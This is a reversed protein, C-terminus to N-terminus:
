DFRDAHLQDYRLELIQNIEVDNWISQRGDPWRIDIRDVRQDSGLGFHIDAPSSSLFGGGARMERTQTGSASTLTVRAGVGHRNLPSGVLKITLWGSEDDGANRYFQPLVSTDGMAHSNQILVDIWGDNDSDFCVVARGQGTSNIGMLTSQESFTGDGDNIFLRAVNGLFRPIHTQYGNVMFLDLWGDNNFDASCSGWGWDGARVGAADTADSFGGQGDNRYLRNGTIGYPRPETTDEWISTVFWDLDGDNDFDGVSSGMGNEDSIVVPDTSHAFTGDAQNMFTRSNGFDASVMLDPWGDSNLDAFQPTFNFMTNHGSYWGGIGSSQSIDEFQGGGLNRWLHGNETGNGHQWYAIMLDLRGDQDVDGLAMSQGDFSSTLNSVNTHDIFQGSGDNLLLRIATHPAEPNESTSVGGLLLDPHGDADVDALLVGNYLGQLQGLGAESSRETFSGDGDNLFLLPPNGGRTVILDAYGDGDVDAAAAGGVHLHVTYNFPMSFPALLGSDLPLVFDFGNWQAQSPCTAFTFLAALLPLRKRIAHMRMSLDDVSPL